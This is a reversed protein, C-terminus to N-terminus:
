FDLVGSYTKLSERVAKAEFSFNMGSKSRLPELATNDAESRWGGNVLTGDANFYDAYERGIYQTRDTEILFNSARIGVRDLALIGETTKQPLATTTDTPRTKNAM